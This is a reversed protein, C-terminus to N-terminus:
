LRGSKQKANSARHCCGRKMAPTRKGRCIGRLVDAAASSVRMVSPKQSYPIKQLAEPSHARATNRAPLARSATNQAEKRFEGQTRATRTCASGCYPQLRYYPIEKAMRRFAANLDIYLM